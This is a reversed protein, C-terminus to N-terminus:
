LAGGPGPPPAPFDYTPAGEGDGCWGPSPPPLRWLAERAVAERSRNAASESGFKRRRAEARSVGSSTPLTNSNGIGM